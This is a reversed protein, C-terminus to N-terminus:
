GLYGLGLGPHRRLCSCGCGPRRRLAVSGLWPSPVQRSLVQVQDSAWPQLIAQLEHPPVGHVWGAVAGNGFFPLSGVFADAPEFPLLGAHRVTRGYALHSRIVLWEQDLTEFVGEHPM